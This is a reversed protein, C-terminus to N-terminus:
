QNLFMMTNCLLARFAPFMIHLFPVLELSPPLAPLSNVKKTFQPLRESCRHLPSRIGRSVVLCTMSGSLWHFTVLQTVTKQSPSQAIHLWTSSSRKKQLSPLLFIIHYHVSILDSFNIRFQRITEASYSAVPFLVAWLPNQSSSRTKEQFEM